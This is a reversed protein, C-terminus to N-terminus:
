HGADEAGELVGICRRLQGILPDCLEPTQWWPPPLEVADEPDTDFVKIRVVPGHGDMAAEERERDEREVNALMLLLRAFEGRPELLDSLFQGMKEATWGYEEPDWGSQAEAWGHEPIVGAFAWMPLRSRGTTISGSQRGDHVVLGPYLDVTEEGPERWITPETM